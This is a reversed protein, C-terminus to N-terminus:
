RIASHLPSDLLHRLQIPFEFNGEPTLLICPTAAAVRAFVSLPLLLGSLFSDSAFAQKHVYLLDIAATSFTTFIPCQWVSLCAPQLSPQSSSRSAPQIAPQYRIPKRLTMMSPSSAFLSSGHRVITKQFALENALDSACPDDDLDLEVLVVCCSM